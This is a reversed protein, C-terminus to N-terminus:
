KSNNFTLISDSEHVGRVAIEYALNTFDQESLTIGDIKSKGSWYDILSEVSENSIAVKSYTQFIPKREDISIQKSNFLKYLTFELLQSQKLREDENMFQWWLM